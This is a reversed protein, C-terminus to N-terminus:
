KVIPYETSETIRLIRRTVEDSHLSDSFKIDITHKRKSDSCLCRTCISSHSISSSIKTYQNIEIQLLMDSGDEALTLNQVTM